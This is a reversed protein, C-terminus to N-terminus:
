GQPKLELNHWWAGDIESYTLIGCDLYAGRMTSYETFACHYEKEVLRQNQPENENVWMKSAIVHRLYAKGLEYLAREKSIMKFGKWNATNFFPSLKDSVANAMDVAEQKDDTYYASAEGYAPAFTVRYENWDSDRQVRALPTKYITKRTM